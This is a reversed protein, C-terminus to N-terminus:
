IKPPVEDIGAAIVQGDVLYKLLGLRRARTDGIQPPMAVDLAARDDMEFRFFLTEDEQILLGHGNKENAADGFLITRQMVNRAASTGTQDDIWLVAAIQPAVSAPPLLKLSKFGDPGFLTAELVHEADVEHEANRPYGAPYPEVTRWGIRISGAYDWPLAAVDQVHFQYLYSGAMASPADFVDRLSVGRLPENRLDNFLLYPEFHFEGSQPTDEDDLYALTAVVPDRLNPVRSVLFIKPPEVSTLRLDVVRLSPEDPPNDTDVPLVSLLCSRGRLDVSFIWAPGTLPLNDSIDSDRLLLNMAPDWVRLQARPGISIMAVMARDALNVVATQYVGVPSIYTLPAATLPSKPDAPEFYNVQVSDIVQAIGYTNRSATLSVTVSSANKVGPLTQRSSAAAELDIRHVAATWEM